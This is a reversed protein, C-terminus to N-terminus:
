YRCQRILGENAEDISIVKPEHIPNAPSVCRVMGDAGVERVLYVRNSELTIYDGESVMICSSGSDSNDCEVIHLGVVKKV